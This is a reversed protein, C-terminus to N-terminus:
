NNSTALQVWNTGDWQVVLTDYQGLAINGSLMTTATDTITITVNALNELTVVTGTVFGSAALTTGLSGAATLPQYSATPTIPVSATVSIAAAPAMTIFKYFTAGNVANFDAVEAGGAAVGMEGSAVRYLGLSTESTFSYAPATVSQDAVRVNNFNTTSGGLALPALEAPKGGLNGYVAVLIAIVVVLANNVPGTLVGYVTKIANKLADM